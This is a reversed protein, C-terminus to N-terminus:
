DTDTAGNEYDYGCTPCFRAGDKRVTSCRPCSVQPQPRATETPQTQQPVREGCVTCFLAGEVLPSGCVRCITQKRQPLRFGCFNCFANASPVERGCNPCNTLGRKEQLLRKREQLEALAGDIQQVASALEPEPEGRHASYYQRGLQAYLQEIQRERESIEGSLAANDGMNKTGMWTKRVQDMFAM